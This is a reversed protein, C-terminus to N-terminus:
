KRGEGEDKKDIGSEENKREREEERTIEERGEGREGGDPQVRKSRSGGQM